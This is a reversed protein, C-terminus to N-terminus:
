EWGIPQKLNPNLKTEDQSLPYYYYKPVIFHNADNGADSYFRIFGKDGESLYIQKNGGKEDLTYYVTIDKLDADSYGMKDNPSKFLAVDPKGDGTCDYIGFGPLYVGEFPQNYIEGAAWRMTDDYRFGECALEVRRERRIELILNRQAGSVNPYLKEQMPDVAVDMKMGPIGVRARIPNVTEDLDAQTLKGLEAKAEANVLLIEAYRIIPLDTINEGWGGYTADTRPLFKLQGLGGYDLVIKTPLTANNGENVFGPYMITEAMRPDRGAFMDVFTKTREEETIPTGDLKLYSDALSRSLNWQWNLVTSTNNKRDLAGDYDAYLIMEKNKSLDPNTFLDRYAAAGGATIEFQGSQMVERTAWVAKELFSDATGALDSVEEHYKRFTGEHLAIRAMYGLAAYRTLRTRSSGEAMHDCAYQLDAMISDVVLKRFDQAKYLAEEDNDAIPASYWPASGYDKILNYYQLARCLRAMGIYHRKEAEDGVARGANVLMFNIRYINKWTGSKKWSHSGITTEDIRGKLKQSFTYDGTGHGINDSYLDDYSAGIMEYFGNTYTELDSVTNFFAEENLGDEPYKQLYDDNCAALLGCGAAVATIYLFRTLKM